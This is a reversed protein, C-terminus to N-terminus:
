PQNSVRGAVGRRRAAGVALRLSASPNEGAGMTCRLVDFATEPAFKEHCHTRAQDLTKEYGLSRLIFDNGRRPRLRPLIRDQRPLASGGAVGSFPDSANM